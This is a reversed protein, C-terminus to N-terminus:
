KNKYYKIKKRIVFKISILVKFLLLKDKLYLQKHFISIKIHLFYYLEIFVMDSLIMNM